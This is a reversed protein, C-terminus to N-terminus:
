TIKVSRTSSSHKCSLMNHVRVCCFHIVKGVVVFAVVVVALTSALAGDSFVSSLSSRSSAAGQVAWDHWSKGDRAEAAAIVHLELCPVAENPCGTTELFCTAYELYLKNELCRVDNGTSSSPTSDRCCITAAELECVTEFGYPHRRCLEPFLSSAHESDESGPRPTYSECSECDAEGLCAALQEDCSRSMSSFTVQRAEVGSTPVGLLAFHSLMSLLVAAKPVGKNNRTKSTRALM